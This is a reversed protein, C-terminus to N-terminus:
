EIRVRICIRLVARAYLVDGYLGGLRLVKGGGDVIKVEGEGERGGPACGTGLGDDDGVRVLGEECECRFEVGRM